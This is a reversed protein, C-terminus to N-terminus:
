KGSSGPARERKKRLHYALSAAVCFAVADKPVKGDVPFLLARNGEFEFDRPFLTRFTDVLDTRCNFYMACRRPDRAKWDM